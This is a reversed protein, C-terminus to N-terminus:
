DRDRDRGIKIGSRDRYFDKPLSDDDRAYKALEPGGAEREIVTVVTSAADPPRMPADELEPCVRDRSHFEFESLLGAQMLARYVRMLQRPKLGYLEMLYYDDPKFRFDKVFRYANLHKSQKPVKKGTAPDFEQTTGVDTRDQRKPGGFVQDRAVMTVDGITDDDDSQRYPDLDPCKVARYQFEMESILGKEMLKRYIDLLQAPRLCYQNMLRFDDPNSRFDKVFQQASIPKNKPVTRKSQRALDEITVIHKKLLQSKLRGLGEPTLGYKAGLESDPVCNRIDQQIENVNIRVKNM